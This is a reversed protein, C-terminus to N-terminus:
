PTPAGAAIWDHVTQILTPDPGPSRPMCSGIIGGQCAMKLYMYSHAPDGPKVRLLSPVEWSPVGILAHFDNAGAIVLTGQGVNHCDDGACVRLMAGVRIELPADSPADDGCLL